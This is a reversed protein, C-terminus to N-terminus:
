DTEAKLAEVQVRVEACRACDIPKLAEIIVYSDSDYMDVMASVFRRPYGLDRDYDTEVTDSTYLPENELGSITSFLEGKREPNADYLERKWEGTPDDSRARPDETTAM